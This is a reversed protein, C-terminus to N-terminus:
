NKNQKIVLVRRSCSRNRLPVTREGRRRSGPLVVCLACVLVFVLVCWLCCALLCAAFGGGGGGGAGCVVFLLCALLCAALAGGGCAGCLVFLVCAPLCASLVCLACSAHGDSVFDCRCLGVARGAVCM